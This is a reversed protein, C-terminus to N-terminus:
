PLREIIAMHVIKKNENVWNGDFRTKPLLKGDFLYGNEAM